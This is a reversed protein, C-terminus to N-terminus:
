WSEGNNIVRSNSHCEAMQIGTNTQYVLHNGKSNKGYPSKMNRTREIFAATSKCGDYTHAALDPSLDDKVINSPNDMALTLLPAAALAAMVALNFLTSLM